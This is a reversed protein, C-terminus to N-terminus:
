LRSPKRRWPVTASRAASRGVCSDLEGTSFPPFNYHHMYGKSDENAITDLMQEMRPMGMTVVNLVQTEGRKFLSSGHTRNLVGVEASLPRIDTSSRGDMRVGEAVVRDRMMSKVLSGFAKGAMKLEVADESNFNELVEDKAASQAANREAKDVIRIIETVKDTGLESVKAFIEDTYDSADPWEGIEKGTLEKLELQLDVMQGIYTKAQELGDVITQEDSSAQGNAIKDMAGDTSGAEVMVIDVAGSDNRKGAVVLDFVCEELESYTPFAIWEGDKLGLRVAGIPGEFPIDSISLAASAGNLSLVDYANEGDVQLITAVVHTDNRYGDRFSPRLPRDILRASLIARETARGERRFFSGPIRGVAYMREEVDITLPFFDVSDRARQNATATVLAETDGMSITVAGNAQGALKGASIIAEKEGILGRVTHESM